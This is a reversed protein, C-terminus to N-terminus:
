VKKFFRGFVLTWHLTLALRVDIGKADIWGIFGLVLGHNKQSFINLITQGLMQSKNSRLNSWCWSGILNTPTDFVRTQINYWLRITCGPGQIPSCKHTWLLTMLRSIEIDRPVYMYTIGKLRIKGRIVLWLLNTSNNANQLGLNCKLHTYHVQGNFNKTNSYILSAFRLRIFM